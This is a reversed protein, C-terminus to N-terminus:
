IHAENKNQWRREERDLFASFKYPQKILLSIEKKNIPHEFNLGVAALFLGKHHITYGKEGHLKDGIIQHGSKALHIRIQHTRGTKPYLEVLSVKGYKLANVTKITKFQTEAQQNEINFDITGSKPPTGVVVARYTKAIEKKEFMQGLLSLSKATKAAILLGSTQADLRHVPKSWKLADPESSKSVNRRLANEITKFQNGSVVIGAPKNVIVLFEDEYIIELELIYEKPLNNEYDILEIRDELKIFRGYEAPSGNLIVEGKKIAKKISSRTPLQVFLGCVYDIFRIQESLKEVIHTEITTM